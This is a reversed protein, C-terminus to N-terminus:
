AAWRYIHHLGNLVPCAIVNGDAARHDPTAPPVPFKIINATAATPVPSLRSEPTQQAIGQHPRARNFYVVYEKLISVLQRIGLVLVHDLCARRLSGVFRECIANALPAQYPTQILEIGSTDAVRAFEAGFKSDTDCILHKPVEGFPTAERLQQAVWEDTPHETVGCHVVRRSALHVIVFAYLTKFCLTVVPVFDCAWIDQGHTQLFTSWSQGSPPHSRVARMYKQITRKAVQIGLKRLEGRIREAGWLPNERAMRQILAITDAALRNSPSLVRSKCQWFLRFGERHWRLLTDPKIIQLVQKWNPVWRALFLLSMRERWTLRPTKAQRHLVILQQRLLANEALLETRSRPLDALTGTVLNTQTPQTVRRFLRNTAISLRPLLKKAFQTLKSLM